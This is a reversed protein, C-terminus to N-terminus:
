AAVSLQARYVQKGDSFLSNQPFGEVAQRRNWQPTGVAEEKGKEMASFRNLKQTFDRSIEEKRKCEKNEL